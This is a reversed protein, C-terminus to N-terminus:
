GGRYRNSWVGGGENRGVCVGSEVVVVVVGRESNQGGNTMPSLAFFLLTSMGVSSSGPSYMEQRRGQGGGRQGGTGARRRCRIGREDQAGPLLGADWM